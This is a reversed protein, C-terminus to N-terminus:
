QDIKNKLPSLEHHLASAHKSRTACPRQMASWCDDHVWELGGGGDKRGEGDKRRWGEMDMTREMDMDIYELVHHADDDIAGGNDEVVIRAGHERRRSDEQAREPATAMPSLSLSLRRKM